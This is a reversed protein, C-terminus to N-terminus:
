NAMEDKDCRKRSGGCLAIAMNGPSRKRAHEGTPASIHRTARNVCTHVREIEAFCLQILTHADYPTSSHHPHPTLPHPEDSPCLVSLHFLLDPSPSKQSLFSAKQENSDQNGRPRASKTNGVWPESKCWDDIGGHARKM